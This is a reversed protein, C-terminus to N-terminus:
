LLVVMSGRCWIKELGEGELRIKGRSGGEGAGSENAALKSGGCIKTRASHLAGLTVTPNAM